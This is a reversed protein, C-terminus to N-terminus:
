NWLLPSSDYVFASVYAASRQRALSYASSPRIM